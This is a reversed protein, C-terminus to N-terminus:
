NYQDICNKPTFSVIKNDLDYEIQFNVQAVNGLIMTDGDEESPVIALCVLDGTDIFINISSLSIEGGDFYFVMNSPGTINFNFGSQKDYCLSLDPEPPDPMPQIGIAEVIAEELSSCISPDIYTLMSSTDIFIDREIDLRMHGVSIGRLTIVYFSPLYRPSLPTTTVFEQGALVRSGLTLKSTFTSNIPTLCYSFRNSVGLQSILSFRGGSLGIFGAEDTNIGEDEQVSCGFVLTSNISGLTFDDKGMVGSTLSSGNGYTYWYQCENNFSDCEMQPINPCFPSDCSITVYSSSQNPDFMQTSQMNCNYCPRCQVWILDTSTDAVVFLNVPPSGLAIKILYDGNSPILGTEFSKGELYNNFHRHRASSHVALSQYRDLLTMSSNYFPSIPSYRHILNLTLGRSMLTKVEHNQFVLMLLYFKVLIYYM